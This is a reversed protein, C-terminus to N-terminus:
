AGGGAQKFGVTVNVYFASSEAALLERGLASEFSVGRGFLPRFDSFNNLQRYVLGAGPKMESALRSALKGVSGADMWDFINSLHIVDFEALTPLADFSGQVYRFRVGAPAERLFYPWAGARPLYHGLFVQHLFYNDRAEPARLARELAGRFYAPYSGKPAHQTAAQTFMAHLLAESFALEFAVPWYPHAFIRDLRALRAEHAVSFLEAWGAPPLVFEGLVGRFTRFLSEFAGCGSLSEPDDRGVGFSQARMEPTEGLAACKREVLELQAPNPDLLTVDLEPHLAKLTLATCGGSAILLVRRARVRRVLADEVRPDERVVAFKIPNLRM